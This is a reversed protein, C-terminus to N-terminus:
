SSQRRAKRRYYWWAFGGGAILQALLIWGLRSRANSAVPKPSAISVPMPNIREVVVQGLRMDAVLAGASETIGAPTFVKPNLPENVHSWELTLDYGEPYKQEHMMRIQFSVPVM